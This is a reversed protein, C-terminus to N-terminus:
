REDLAAKAFADPGRIQAQKAADDGILCDMLQPVLPMMGRKVLGNPTDESGIACVQDTIVEKTRAAPGIIPEVHRRSLLAVTKAVCAEGLDLYKELSAAKDKM